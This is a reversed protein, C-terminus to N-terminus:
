MEILRNADNACVKIADQPWRNHRKILFGIQIAYALPVFHSSFVPLLNSQYLLVQQLGLLSAILSLLIPM